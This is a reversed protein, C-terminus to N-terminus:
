KDWLRFGQEMLGAFAAVAKGFQQKQKLEEMVYGEVKNKNTSSKTNGFTTNFRPM